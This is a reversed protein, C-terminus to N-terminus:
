KRTLHLAAFSEHHDVEFAEAGAHLCVGADHSLGDSRWRHAPYVRAVALLYAAAGRTRDVGRDVGAGLVVIPLACTQVGTVAVCIMFSSLIYSCEFYNVVLIDRVVIGICVGIVGGSWFGVCLFWWVRGGMMGGERRM